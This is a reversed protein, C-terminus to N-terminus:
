PALWSQHAKKTKPVFVNRARGDYKKARSSASGAGNKGLEFLYELERDDFGDVRRRLRFIFTIVAVV